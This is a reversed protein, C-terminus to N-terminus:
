EQEEDICLLYIFANQVIIKQEKCKKRKIQITNKCMLKFLSLFSAALNMLDIAIITAAAAATIKTNM